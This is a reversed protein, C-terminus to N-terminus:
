QVRQSVQSQIRLFFSLMILYHNFLSLKYILLGSLGDIGGFPLFPDKDHAGAAHKINPLYSSFRLLNFLHINKTSSTTAEQRRRPIISSRDDM